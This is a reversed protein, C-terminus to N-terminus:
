LDATWARFNRMWNLMLSLTLRLQCRLYLWLTWKVCSCFAWHSTSTLSGRQTSAAPLPQQTSCLYYWREQNEGVRWWGWCFLRGQELGLRHRRCSAARLCTAQVPLQSPLFRGQRARPSPLVSSGLWVTYRHWVAGLVHHAGTGSAWMSVPCHSPWSM